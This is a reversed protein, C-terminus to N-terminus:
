SLKRSKVVRSKVGTAEGGYTTTPAKVDQVAGKRRVQAKAFALRHKKRPNKLDKRRHPTLGRNREIADTIGRAGGAVTEDALPPLTDAVGYRDAKARKRDAASAAAAQYLENQEGGARKAGRAGGGFNLDDPAGGDEEGDGAAASRRAAASDYKLRREHLPARRPVDEDGGRTEARPADAGFKQSVKQRSFLDALRSGKSGTGAAQSMGVIDAVEDAFDDLMVKGSMGARKQAKMKKAEEKSMPVRSMMDEEVAARAELRQRQKVAALGDFGPVETRMERPAGSVDARLDAVLESRSAKRRAEKLLRAENRSLRGTEEDGDMSVPNIKPPRYVGDGGGRESGDGAGSGAKPGPGGAKAALQDRRPGFHLADGDLDADEGGTGNASADTTGAAGDKSAIQAAKILREVQAAKILREVQGM